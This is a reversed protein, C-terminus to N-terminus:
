LSATTVLVFAAIDKGLKPHDVNAYYAAIYRNEELKRLRDSVSPLSLGVSESPNNRRARGDRQVINLIKIDIEDLTM